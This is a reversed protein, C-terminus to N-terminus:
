SGVRSADLATSLPKGMDGKLKKTYAQYQEDGLASERRAGIGRSYARTLAGERDPVNTRM